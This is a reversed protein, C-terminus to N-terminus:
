RSVQNWELIFLVPQGPQFIAPWQEFRDLRARQSELWQAVARYEEMGGPHGTYAIITLLCHGSLHTIVQRLAALTSEPTTIMSHDGGPLYGLNMMVARVRALDAAPLALLWDAHSRHHLIAYDLLRQDHLRQETASLAASQIDFAHVRGEPRVCAALFLTDGGNGATLDVAFDGARLFQSVAQHAAKTLSSM